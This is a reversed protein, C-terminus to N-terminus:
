PEYRHIHGADAHPNIVLPYFLMAMYIYYIYTHTHTYVCVCVRVYMCVCMYMYLTTDLNNRVPVAMLVASTTTHLVPGLLSFQSNRTRSRRKTFVHSSTVGFEPLFLGAQKVMVVGERVSTRVWCNRAFYLIATM